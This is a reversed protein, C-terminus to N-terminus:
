GETNPHKGMTEEVRFCSSRCMLEAPRSYFVIFFHHSIVFPCGSKHQTDVDVVGSSKCRARMAGQVCQLIETKAFSLLRYAPHTHHYLVTCWSNVELGQASQDLGVVTM